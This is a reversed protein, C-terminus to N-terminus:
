AKLEEIRRRALALDRPKTKQSKKKVAHVFVILQGVMTFYFYRFETGGFEPRLEWLDGDLHKAYQSPLTNGREILLQLYAFFKSQEKDSLSFLFDQVPTDGDPNTYFTVEWEMNEMIVNVDYDTM